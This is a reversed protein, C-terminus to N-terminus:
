QSVCAGKKKWANGEVTKMIQYPNEVEDGNVKPLGLKDMKAREISLYTTKDSDTVIEPIEPFSSGLGNMFRDSVYTHEFLTKDFGIAALEKRTKESNFRYSLYMVDPDGIFRNRTDEPTKVGSNDKIRADSTFARLDYSDNNYAVLRENIIDVLEQDMEITQLLSVNIDLSDESAKKGVEPDGTIGRGAYDVRIKAYLDYAETKESDKFYKLLGLQSNVYVQLIYLSNRSRQSSIKGIM